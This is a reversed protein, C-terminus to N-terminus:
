EWTHVSDYGITNASTETTAGLLVQLDDSIDNVYTQSSTAANKELILTNEAPFEGLNSYQWNNFVVRYPQDLNATDLYILLVEFDNQHLEFTYLGGDPSNETAWYFYYQLVLASTGGDNGSIVRGVVSDPMETADTEDDIYLFPKYGDLLEGATITNGVELATINFYIRADGIDTLLDLTENIPNLQSYSVKGLPDDPSGPDSDRVELTINIMRAKTELLLLNITFNDNNNWQWESGVDPYRTKNGNVGGEIFIDGAGITDHDNIVLISLLTVKILYFPENIESVVDTHNYVISGTVPFNTLNTTSYGGIDPLTPKVSTEISFEKETSKGFNIDITQTETENVQASVSGSSVILLTIILIIKIGNKLIM